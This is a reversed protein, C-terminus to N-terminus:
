KTNKLRNQSRVLEDHLMEYGNAVEAVRPSFKMGCWREGNWFTNKLNLPLSISDMSTPLEDEVKKHVKKKKHERRSLPRKYFKYEKPLLSRNRQLDVMGISKYPLVHPPPYLGHGENMGQHLLKICGEKSWDSFEDKRKAELNKLAKGM